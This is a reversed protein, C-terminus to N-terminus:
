AAKIEEWIRNRLKVTEPPLFQEFDVSGIADEDYKLAPNNKIAKKIHPEAAPLLYASGTTNIFDAYVEPQLHYDMFATVEDLVETGKIAVWGDLYAPMGEEPSVWVVNDNEAQAAGIDYDYAVTIAASGQLMPKTVDSSRFAQLHPKIDLLAQKAADLESPETANVGYGRSLLAAGLIDVDYDTFIIKRSYQPALEWLQAWSTIPEKVLDKRYGIGVKGLDTPIGWPFADRFAQPVQEVNPIRSFDVPEIVDALELHKGLVDGALAMDYADRNQNIQAAQAASGGSPTAVQKIKVNPYKAEFGSVEDAGIWDPYNVFTIEGELEAAPKPTGSAKAAGSPEESDGCAALLGGFSAVGALQVGGKLLRRRSLPRQLWIHPPQRDKGM